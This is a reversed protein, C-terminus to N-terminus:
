RGVKRIDSKNVEMAGIYEVQEWMTKLKNCAHKANIEKDFLAYTCNNQMDPKEGLLGRYDRIVGTWMGIVRHLGNGLTYSFHTLKVAYCKM